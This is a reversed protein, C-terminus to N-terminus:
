RQPQTEGSQRVQVQLKVDTWRTVDLTDTHHSLGGGMWQTGESCSASPPAAPGSLSSPSASAASAFAAPVPQQADCHGDGHRPSHMAAPQDTYM